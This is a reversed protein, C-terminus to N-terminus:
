LNGVIVMPILVALGLWLYFSSDGNKSSGRIICAILFIFSIFCIFFGSLGASEGGNEIGSREPHHKMENSFNLASNIAGCCILLYLIYCIVPIPHQKISQWIAKMSRKLMSVQFISFTVKREAKSGESDNLIVLQYGLIM